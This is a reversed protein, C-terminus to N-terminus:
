TLIIERSIMLQKQLLAGPKYLYLYLYLQYLQEYFVMVFM